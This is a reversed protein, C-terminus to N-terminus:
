AVDEPKLEAGASAARALPRGLWDGLSAPSLGGGPRQAVLDDASLRHGRPLDTRFRLSKRAVRRVDAEVPLPETRETGRALEAFRALRVYEAFGRPDLSAAHDPGPMTRDLTLHKELIMAGAAVALAGTRESDAHDSFGAVIGFRRALMGITALHLSEIPAPYASICHLLAIPTDSLATLTANIEDLRSAGTSLILPKGLRAARRLLPLNDLDTSAFKLAPPDLTALLDLSPEDFVSNLFVLGLRDAHERLSVHTDGHLTLARLLERQDRLGPAVAYEALPANAACLEDPDFIQFKVADAGAAAAAEVLAHALAPDGNHNVGAEAIIFVPRAPGLTRDAITLERGSSPDIGATSSLANM